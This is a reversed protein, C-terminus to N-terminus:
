FLCSLWFYDSKRIFTRAKEELEKAYKKLGEKSPKKDGLFIRIKEWKNLGLRINKTLYYYKKEERKITEAYTM